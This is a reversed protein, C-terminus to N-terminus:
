GLLLRHQPGQRYAAQFRALPQCHGHCAAAHDVHLVIGIRHVASQDALPDLHPNVHFMQLHPVGLLSHSRQRPQTTAALPVDIVPVHDVGQDALRARQRIITVALLQKGATPEAHGIVQEVLRQRGPRIPFVQLNQVQRGVLAFCADFL